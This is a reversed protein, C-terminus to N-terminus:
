QWPAKLDGIIVNPALIVNTYSEEVLTTQTGQDMVRVFIGIPLLPEAPVNPDSYILDFLVSGPFSFLEFNMPGSVFVDIPQPSWPMFLDDPDHYLVIEQNNGMVVAVQAIVSSSTTIDIVPTITDVSDFFGDGSGVSITVDATVPGVGTGTGVNSVYASIATEDKSFDGSAPEWEDALVGSPVFALSVFLVILVMAIKSVNVM